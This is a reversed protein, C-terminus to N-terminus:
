VFGGRKLNSRIVIDQVDWFVREIQDRDTADTVHVFIRKTKNHNYSLYINTIFEL